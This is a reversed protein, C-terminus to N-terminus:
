RKIKQYVGYEPQELTRDLWRNLWRDVTASSLSMGRGIEIAEKRVFRKPLATWFEKKNKTSRDFPKKTKPLQEYLMISHKLYYEALVLAMDFDVDNCICQKAKGQKEYKRIATFIMAMRFLILGMRKVISLAESGVLTNTEELRMSFTANLKQWQERSLQVTTPHKKLFIVMQQVEKSLDDFLSTLNEDGVGPSVDRWKVEVEFVYFLFRSFLGDEVSPILKGVQSPTGSLAVSLKPQDIEVFEGSQKRSYSIAEHHFAKRLLDSYGGWDQKLVNGLTDSESEFLVGAGGNQQLHQILMASSSNAPIYLLQFSPQEPPPKPVTGKGKKHQFVAVEHQYMEKKYEKRLAKSKELLEEHRAIGLTNAFSMAGKGSASPAIIFSFLNPYYTRRDYIGSVQPLCGSLVTLAGTLFVDRERKDLFTACAKQLLEPLRSFVNQPICPISEKKTELKVPSNNKWLKLEEATAFKDYGRKYASLITQEMEKRPLDFQVGSFQQVQDLPIGALNCN